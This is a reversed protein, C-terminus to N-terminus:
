HNIILQGVNTEFEKEREEKWLQLEYAAKLQMEETIVNLENLNNLSRTGAGATKLSNVASKMNIISEKPKEDVTILTSENQFIIQSNQQQQQTYQKDFLHHHVPSKRTQEISHASLNEKSLRNDIASLMSVNDGTANERCISIQVALLASTTADLPSCSRAAQSTSSLPEL